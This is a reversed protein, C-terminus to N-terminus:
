AGAGGKRESAQRPEQQGLLCLRSPSSLLAPTESGQWMADAPRIAAKWVAAWVCATM